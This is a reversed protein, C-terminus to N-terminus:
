LEVQTGLEVVRNTPIQFFDSAKVANKSMSSSCGSAGCRWARRCQDSDADRAVRLVVDGDHRLRLRRQERSRSCSRCTRIRRSGTTRRVIQYFDRASRSSRSREDERRRVPHRAHRDDPVRRARAAGQQAEPQAAARAARPGADVDPVGGHGAVRTPPSSRSARSSCTSRCRTRRCLADMLLARGRKWTTLLTFVVAGILSRSGAATPFRSRTRRSSRSTSSRSRCRSRSRSAM